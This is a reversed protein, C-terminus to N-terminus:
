APGLQSPQQAKPIILLVYICEMVGLRGEWVNWLAWGGLGYMVYRGTKMCKGGNVRNRFGRIADLRLFFWM